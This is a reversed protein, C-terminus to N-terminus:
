AAATRAEKVAWDYGVLGWCSDVEEGNEEIVYGFVEGNLYQGFTKVEDQMQKKIKEVLAKTIRKVMFVERAQEHTVYMIGSQGSDFEAHGQPLQGHFDRCQLVVGSHVYAYVPLVIVDKRQEIERMEDPEVAEDGLTYPSGKRYLITGLPADERPNLPDEDPYIKVTKKGVAFTEIPDSM